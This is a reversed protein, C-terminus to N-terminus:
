SIPFQCKSRCPLIYYGGNKKLLPNLKRQQYVIAFSNENAWLFSLIGLSDLCSLGVIEIGTSTKREFSITESIMASSTKYATPPTLGTVYTTSHVHLLCAKSHQRYYLHRPLQVILRRVEHRTTWSTANSKNPNAVDKSKRSPRGNISTRPNNCISM